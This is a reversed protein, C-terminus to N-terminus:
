LADKMEGDDRRPASQERRVGPSQIVRNLVKEGQTALVTDYQRQLDDCRHELTARQVAFHAQQRAQAAVQEGLARRLEAVQAASSEQAVQLAAKLKRVEEMCRLARTTVTADPDFTRPTLDVCTTSALHSRIDAVEFLLDDLALFVDRPESLAPTLKPPSVAAPSPTHQVAANQQNRLPQSPSCSPSTFHSRDPQKRLRQVEVQLEEVTHSLEANRAAAAEVELTLLLSDAADANASAAGDQFPSYM